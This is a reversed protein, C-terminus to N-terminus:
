IRPVRYTRTAQGDIGFVLLAPLKPREGSSANIDANIDSMISNVMKELASTKSRQTNWKRRRADATTWPLEGERVAHQYSRPYDLYEDYGNYKSGTLHVFSAEVRDELWSANM